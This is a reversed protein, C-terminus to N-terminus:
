HISADSWDIVDKDIDNDIHCGNCNKTLTKYYIIAASFDQKKLAKRIGDIPPVLKKQYYKKFPGNLKRHTPFKDAIVQLSSDMGELLWEAYDANKERLYMGLNDHYVMMDIMNEDLDKNNFVPEACAGYLFIFLCLSIITIWTKM